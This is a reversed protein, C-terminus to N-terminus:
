PCVEAVSEALRPPVANGNLQYQRKKSGVFRFWDPFSQLRACERVTCRRPYDHHVPPASKGAVVTFAPDDPHARAYAPHPATGHECERLKEVTSQRHNIGVHNTVDHDADPDPLGNLAATVSVYPELTV